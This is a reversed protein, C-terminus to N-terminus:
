ASVGKRARAALILYVPIGAAVLGLGVLRPGPRSALEEGAVVLAALAFLPAVIAAGPLRWAPRYDARRRLRLLGCALIAFFIWETFVVRAVLERYSGTLVLICGWIAQLVIARHPTHWRPHLQALWGFALGDAAM